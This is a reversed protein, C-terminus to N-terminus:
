DFIKNMGFYIGIVELFLIILRNINCRVRTNKLRDQIFIILFIFDSLMLKLIQIMRIKHNPEDIERYCSCENIYVSKSLGSRHVNFLNCHLLSFEFM